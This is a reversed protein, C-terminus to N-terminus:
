AQNVYTSAIGGVDSRKVGFGLSQVDREHAHRSERLRRQDPQNSVSV